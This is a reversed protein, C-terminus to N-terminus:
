VATTVELYVRVYLLYVRILIMNIIEPYERHFSSKLVSADRQTPSGMIDPQFVNLGGALHVASGLVASPPSTFTHTM